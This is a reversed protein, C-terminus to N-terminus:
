HRDHPPANATDAREEGHDAGADGGTEAEPDYGTEGDDLLTVHTSGTEPDYALGYNGPGEKRVRRWEHWGAYAFIAAFPIILLLALTATPVAVRGSEPTPRASKRPPPRTMPWAM